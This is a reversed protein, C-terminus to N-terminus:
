KSLEGLVKDYTEVMAKMKNVSAPADESVPVLSSEHERPVPCNMVRHKQECHEEGKEKSGNEIGNENWNAFLEKMAIGKDRAKSLADIFSDLDCGDENLLKLRIEEGSTSNLNQFLNSSSLRQLKMASGEEKDLHSLSNFSQQRSSPLSHSTVPLPTYSEHLYSERLKSMMSAKSESKEDEASNMNILDTSTFSEDRDVLSTDILKLAWELASDVFLLRVLTEKGDMNLKGKYQLDFLDKFTERLILRHSRIKKIIQLVHPSQLDLKEDPKRALLLSLENALSGATLETHAGDGDNTKKINKKFFHDMNRMSYLSVKEKFLEPVHRYDADVTILSTSTRLCQLLSTASYIDLDNGVISLYNLTNCFPLTEFLAKLSETSLGNNELHLRALSQFRPLSSCFYTNIAESSNGQEHTALLSTSTHTTDLRTLPLTTTVSEKGDDGQDVPTCPGGNGTKKKEQPYEDRQFISEQPSLNMSLDLSRFLKPNNSMDLYKLKPLRVIFNQFFERFIENFNLNTANLSLFGIQSDSVTNKICKSRKHHLFVTLYKASLLDNYGLDLGRCIPSLVWNEFVVSLQQPSLQNYALGLKYTKICVAQKILSNFASLDTICCGTLILEEIGGRAVLAATLLPWDMDSRNEHNCVMRSVVDQEPDAKKKRKLLNLSLPPCQTIDLRNIVRNRSLFWCLLMWGEADIPTNRLSLKELQTKACMASLLVNFQELSLSVGDLSICIIPAIRIFDAFTQIEVMTPKPNRLQLIPLPAMSGEPIQKSIAPIPMIERLHCCRTYMLDLAMKKVPISYGSKRKLHIMPKEIGLLKAHQNIKVDPEESDNKEESSVETSTSTTEPTDKEILGLAGSGGVVLGGGQGRLSKEIAVKDAETLPNVRVVGSPLIEVNGRRPTRSPIQQPPDILFTQSHFAVHKLPRVQELKSPIQEPYRHAKTSSESEHSVESGFTRDVTKAQDSGLNMKRLFSSLKSHQSPTFNQHNSSSDIDIKEERHKLCSEHRHEQRFFQIYERLRPDETLDKVCDDRPCDERPASVRGVRSCSQGDTKERPLQPSHSGSDEHTSKSSVSAHNSDTAKSASEVRQLRNKLKSFFGGSSSSSEISSYSGASSVSTRRKVSPQSSSDLSFDKIVNPLAEEEMVPSVSPKAKNVTTDHANLIPMLPSLSVQFSANTHADENQSDLSGSDNDNSTASPRDALPVNTDRLFWDVDANNVGEIAKNTKELMSDYLPKWDGSTNEQSDSM